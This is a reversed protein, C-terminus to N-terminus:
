GLAKMKAVFQTASVKGAFLKSVEDLMVPAQDGPLAQDWSLTFSPARQVTVYQFSAFDPNPSSTLMVGAIATTPVDGNKVLAEAYSQSAMAKVFALAAKQHKAATNISWYNSPNGVVDAVNGAGNGMSPFTTWGLGSKAFQPNKSLQTSYEWSGMLHMGAQGKALLTSAVGGNYPVTGFRTGFDGESVMQRVMKAAQLVAPDGWASSDGNQIRQFVKPGGLRDLLYELWML